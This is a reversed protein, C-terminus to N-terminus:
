KLQGKVNLFPTKKNQQKTKIKAKRNSEKLVASCRRGTQTDYRATREEAIRRRGRRRSHLGFRRSLSCHTRGGERGVDGRGADAKHIKGM